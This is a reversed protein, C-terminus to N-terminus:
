HIGAAHGALIMAKRAQSEPSDEAKTSFNRPVKVPEPADPHGFWTVELTGEVFPQLKRPRVLPIPYGIPEAPFRAPAITTSGYFRIEVSEAGHRWPLWLYLTDNALKLNQQDPACMGEDGWTRAFVEWSETRRSAATRVALAFVPHLESHADHVGDLGFVGVAVAFRGDLRDHFDSSHVMQRAAFDGWWRDESWYKLLERRNFEMELLRTGRGAGAGHVQPSGATRGPDGPTQLMLGVDGDYNPVGSGIPGIIGREDAVFIRGWLTAASRTPALHPAVRFNVHTVEGACLKGFQVSPPPFEVENRYSTCGNLFLSDTRDRNRFGDCVSDPDPLAAGTWRPNVYFGNRDLTDSVLDLVPAPLPSSHGPSAAGPAPSVTPKQTKQCAIVAAMAAIWAVRRGARM